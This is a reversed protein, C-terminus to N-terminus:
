YSLGMFDGNKAFLVTAADYDIDNMDYYCRLVDGAIEIEYLWYYSGGLDTQWLVRGDMSVAAPDPGYYGGLYMTGDADVAHSISGGLSLSDDPINWLVAGSMFDIATLGKEASFAMVLPNNATGGIFADVMTLETSYSCDATYDWVFNGSADSAEIYVRETNDYSYKASVTLGGFEHVFLHDGAAGATELYESLIYGFEGNYSGFIFGSGTDACDQVVAGLPVQALRESATDAEARLSVWESCNVVVMDGIYTDKEALAFSCLLMVIAIMGAFLRKMMRVEKMSEASENYM